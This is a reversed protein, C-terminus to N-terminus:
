DDFLRENQNDFLTANDNSEPTPEAPPNLALWKELEAIRADIAFDDRGRWV